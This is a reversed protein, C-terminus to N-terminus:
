KWEGHCYEDWQEQSSESDPIHIAGSSFWVGHSALVAGTLKEGPRLRVCFLVWLAHEFFWWRSHLDNWNSPLPTTRRYWRIWYDPRM